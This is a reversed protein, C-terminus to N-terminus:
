FFRASQGFEQMKVSSLHENYVKLCKSNLSISPAQFSNLSAVLVIKQQHLEEIERLVHCPQPAIM